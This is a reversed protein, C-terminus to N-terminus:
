GVLVARQATWTDGSKTVHITYRHGDSVLVDCDAVSGKVTCHVSSVKLPAIEANVTDRVKGELWSHTPHFHSYLFPGALALPLFM